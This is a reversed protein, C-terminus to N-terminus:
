RGHMGRHFRYYLFDDLYIFFVVQGAILWWPPLPGAHITSVPRLLPWIAVFGVLNWANNRVFSRISPGVLEQARPRQRQIRYPRLAAPEVAAVWTLVGAFVSFAAMAVFASAIPFLLFLPDAYADRLSELM